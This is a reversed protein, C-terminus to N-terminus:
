SVNLAVRSRMFQDIRQCAEKLSADDQAFSIRVHGAASPGFATADLVSVGTERLLAWAFDRGSLGTARIDLMLFMGAEAPIVNLGPIQTLQGMVLDRRRRYVERMEGTIIDSQEVAVLAAQQVFGPLGYLVCLALNEAHKILQKPGILWGSRWGTMAHSKSLSGVTVTREAMGPLGAMRQHPADFTLASYVEDSIVWLDHERAIAAIAALEDATMNIGTPNNPNSLMIARTNATIASRIAKPDPRFGADAQTSVFVPKAGSAGITAEYTVYNPELVIVEDGATLLLMSAFFLGNQTGSVVCVNDASAPNGGSAAFRSAIADRLWREGIVETYHTDGDHLAAVAADTVPKPTDFDPDGISLLIIDEGRAQAKLAETHITWAEAGEGAIRKVLPSYNM